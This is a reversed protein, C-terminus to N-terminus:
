VLGLDRLQIIYADMPSVVGNNDIDFKDLDTPEFQGNLYNLICIADALSVRGDNNVDMDRYEASSTMAGCSLGAMIGAIVLSTLRKKIKM